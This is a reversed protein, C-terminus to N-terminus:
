DALGRVVPTPAGAPTTRMTGSAHEVNGGFDTRRLWMERGSMPCMAVGTSDPHSDVVQLDPILQLCVPCLTEPATHRTIPMDDSTTHHNRLRWYHTRCLGRASHPRDCGDVTCLTM